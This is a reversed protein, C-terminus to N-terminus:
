SAHVCAFALCRCQLMATCSLVETKLGRRRMWAMSSLLQQDLDYVLLLRGSLCRCM